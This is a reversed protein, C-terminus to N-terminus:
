LEVFLDGSFRGVGFVTWLLINLSKLSGKSTKNIYYIFFSMREYIYKFVNHYGNKCSFTVRDM